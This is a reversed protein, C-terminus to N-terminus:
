ASRRSRRPPGAPRARETPGLDDRRKKMTRALDAGKKPGLGIEDLGAIWAPAVDCLADLMADTARTRVGFREGFAVFSARTLNDTRGDLPLAMTRDGYPLTSLVDYAPTLEVLGHRTTRLSVNKAHLDGNAILYSFAILRLLKAVEVVPASALEQVGLAIDSCPLAYKDAPYRDLFQCADEQHVKRLSREEVIRDFRQVLLGRAGDRDHVLESHPVELGAEAAMRLFFHENEVLRPAHPPNLKLIYAARRGGQARLPISLMGASIKEQVGPLTPEQGLKGSLSQALLDAFRAEQLKTPDVSPRVDEDRDELTVSVDGICDAGASALLSLLDDESTKVRGVLARLRVGEPLLGAFFTHLNTGRTEVRRQAYPLHYAIGRDLPAPRAQTLFAEDYAFAGGDRTRTLRGVIEDERRVIATTVITTTM